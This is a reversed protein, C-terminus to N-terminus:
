GVDEYTKHKIQKTKKVHKKHWERQASSLRLSGTLTDDFFEEPWDKDDINGSQHIPIHKINSVGNKREVFYLAVDTNKIKEEAILTRIRLLLHESHTELIVFKKEETALHVFFDGLQSQIKPNLHIEPEETIFIDGKPTYLGQVIIPLIQSYGFGSDALDVWLKGSKDRILLRFAWSIREGVREIKIKIGDFRDNLIENIDREFKTGRNLWLIEATKEGTAGVAGPRDGSLYFIRKPKERLQGVFDMRELIDQVISSLALISIYRSFSKQFLKDNKLMKRQVIQTIVPEPLFLFNNPKVLLSKIPTSLEFKYRKIGYLVRKLKIKLLIKGKLNKIIYEDLRIRKKPTGKKFKINLEVPADENIETDNNKKDYDVLRIKFEINENVDNNFVCHKYDGLDVYNGSLKLPTDLDLSELSQKMLLFPLILSTKGSNNPGIFITLPKINRWKTDEFCRFNKWRFEYPRM